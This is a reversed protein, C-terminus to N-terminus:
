CRALRFREFRRQRTSCIKAACCAIPPLSTLVMPKALARTFTAIVFM